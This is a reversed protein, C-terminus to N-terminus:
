TVHIGLEGLETEILTDWGQNAKPNAPSPHTIRGVRVDMNRLAQAARQAAFTGVGIVHHPQLLAVTQHLARDCAEFLAKKEAKPLKDPTRNRGSGEMFVLPCYNAVWFRKFFREPTQFRHEAWGWLRQGSVESRPCEFGLIPRKPHPHVPQQVQGTIGLWEKVLSVQGFPVGTQAMGWPGPNMGLLIIEKHGLGYKRWYTLHPGRAYVLPNYVHTVPSSFRLTAIGEVLADVMLNIAEPQVAMAHHKQDIRIKM